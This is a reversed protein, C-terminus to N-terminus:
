YKNKLYEDYLRRLLKVDEWVFTKWNPNRLLAAPHYTGLMKIGHYDLIKGRIEGMKNKTKLLTDISTLGLALIFVPKILEIQKM